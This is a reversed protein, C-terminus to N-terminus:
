RAILVTITRDEESATVADARGNGDFEILIDGAKLGAKAAPTGERVDAFRFRALAGEPGGLWAEPGDHPSAGIEGEAGLRATVSSM